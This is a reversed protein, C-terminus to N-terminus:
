VALPNHYMAIATLKAVQAEEVWELFDRMKAAIHFRGRSDRGLYLILSPAGSQTPHVAVM